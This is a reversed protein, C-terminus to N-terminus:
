AGHSEELEKTGESPRREAKYAGSTLEEDIWGIAWAKSPKALLAKFEGCTETCIRHRYRVAQWSWDFHRRRESPDFLTEDSVLGPFFASATQAFRHFDGSEPLPSSIEADAQYWHIV